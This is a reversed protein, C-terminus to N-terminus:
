SAQDVRRKREEREDKHGSGVALKGPQARGEGSAEQRERNDNLRGDSQDSRGARGAPTQQM